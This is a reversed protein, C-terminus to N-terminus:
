RYSTGFQESVARREFRDNFHNETQRDDSRVYFFTTVTQDFGVFASPQRPNRSLNLRPNGQAIPPDFALAGASGADAYRLEAEHRLERSSVAPKRSACGASLALLAIITIGARM